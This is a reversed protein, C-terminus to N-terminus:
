KKPLPSSSLPPKPYLEQLECQGWPNSTLHCIVNSAETPHVCRLNLINFQTCNINPSKKSM